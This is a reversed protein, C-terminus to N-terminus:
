LESALGLVVATSLERAVTDVDPTHSELRSSATEFWVAGLILRIILDPDFNRRDWWSLNTRVVDAIEHVVDRRAFGTRDPATM